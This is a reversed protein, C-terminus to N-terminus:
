AVSRKATMRLPLSRRLVQDTVWKASRRAHELVDEQPLQHYDDNFVLFGIDGRYGIRELRRLIAALESSHVGEGPFVRMHISTDRKDRPTRIETASFDALQLLAIKQPDIEELSDLETQNAMLHFSDIVLSFNAHDVAMVMEWADENSRTVSGWPVAKYGIRVGQPVALNALKRLDQAMKTASDAPLDVTTSCVILLPANIARCMKLTAKALDVKCDHQSGELGEYDRIVQLGTVKLGSTTVLEVAAAFGGPYNALDKAWLMIQSFGAKKVADLKGALDGPLAVTDMSFNSLDM